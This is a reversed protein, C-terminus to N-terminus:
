NLSFQKTNVETNQAKMSITEGGKKDSKLNM